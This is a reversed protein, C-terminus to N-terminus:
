LLNSQSLVLYHWVHIIGLFQKYKASMCRAQSAYIYAYRYSNQSWDSKALGTMAKPETMVSAELESEELELEDTWSSSSGELSRKASYAGSCEASASASLCFFSFVVFLFCYFYFCLILFYNFYILIYYCKLINSDCHLGGCVCLCYCFFHFLYSDFVFIIFFLFSYLSFLIM